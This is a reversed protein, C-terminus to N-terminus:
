GHKKILFSKKSKGGHKLGPVKLQMIQNMIEPSIPNTTQSDQQVSEHFANQNQQLETGLTQQSDSPAGNDVQQNTQQNVQQNIANIQNQTNQLKLQRRDKIGKALTQSLQGFGGLMQTLVNAWQSSKNSSGSPITFETGNEDRFGDGRDIYKKQDGGRSTYVISEGAEYKKILKRM